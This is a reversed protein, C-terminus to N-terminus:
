KSYQAALNAHKEALAKARKRASDTGKLSKAAYYAAMARHYQALYKFTSEDM